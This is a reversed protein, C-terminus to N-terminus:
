AAGRPEDSRAGNVPEVHAISAIADDVIVVCPVAGAPPSLLAARARVRDEPVVAALVDALVEAVPRPTVRVGGGEALSLVVCERPEVPAGYARFVDLAYAPRPDPARRITVSM